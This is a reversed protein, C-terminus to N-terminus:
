QLDYIRWAVPLNSSGIEYICDNYYRINHFIKIWIKEYYWSHSQIAWIISNCLNCKGSLAKNYSTHSISSKRKSSHVHQQNRWSHALCHWPVWYSSFTVWNLANLHMMPRLLCVWRSYWVYHCLAHLDENELSIHNSHIYKTVAIIVAHFTDLYSTKELGYKGM